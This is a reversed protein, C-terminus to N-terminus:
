DEEKEELEEQEIIIEVLEDVSGKYQREPLAECSENYDEIIDKALQDVTGQRVRQLANYLHEVNNAYDYLDEADPEWKGKSAIADDDEAVESIKEEKEEKEEEKVEPLEEELDALSEEYCGELWKKFSMKPGLRLQEKYLLQLEAEAKNAAYWSAFDAKVKQLAATVDKRFVVLDGEKKYVKVGLKKLQQKVKSQDMEIEWM